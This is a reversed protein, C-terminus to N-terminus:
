KEDIANALKMLWNLAVCDAYIRLSIGLGLDWGAMEVALSASAVLCSNNVMSCSRCGGCSIRDRNNAQNGRASLNFEPDLTFFGPGFSGAKPQGQFPSCFRIWDGRDASLM